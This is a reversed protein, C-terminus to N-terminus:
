RKDTTPEINIIYKVGTDTMALKKSFLNLLYSSHRHSHTETRALKRLLGSAKYIVPNSRLSALVHYVIDDNRVRLTFCDLIQETEGSQKVVNAIVSVYFKVAHLLCENNKM